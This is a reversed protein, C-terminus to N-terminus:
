VGIKSWDAYPSIIFWLTVFVRLTNERSLSSLRDSLLSGDATKMRTNTGWENVTQEEECAPFGTSRHDATRRGRDINGM